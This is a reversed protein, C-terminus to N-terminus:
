DEHALNCVEGFGGLGRRIESIVEDSSRDMDIRSLIEKVQETNVWDFPVFCFGSPQRPKAAENGCFIPFVTKM